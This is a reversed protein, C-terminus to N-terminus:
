GNRGHERVHAGRRMRNRLDIKCGIYFRRAYGQLWRTVGLNIKKATTLHPSNQADRYLEELRRAGARYDYRTIIYERAFSSLSQYRESDTMIGEVADALASPAAPEKRNRGAFNFYALEDVSSHDAIGALGNEGVVITPKGCAMGEWACRGIGFVIDAWSLFEPTRTISGLLIVINRHAKSNAERALSEIEARMDGDGAIALTVERGREALIGAAAVANRLSGIKTRDVRSMFAIKWGEGTMGKERSFEVSDIGPHFMDLDIRNPMVEVMRPRGGFWGAGADRFEEAVFLLGAPYGPMYFDDVYWVATHFIPINRKPASFLTLLYTLPHFTHVIDISHEDLARSMIRHAKYNLHYMYPPFRGYPADILTIDAAVLRDDYIGGRRTMFFVNHGLERLGRALTISTNPAGGLDLWPYSILINM